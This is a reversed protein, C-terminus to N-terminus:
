HQMVVVEFQLSETSTEKCCGEAWLNETLIVYCRTNFFSNEM